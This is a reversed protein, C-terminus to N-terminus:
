LNRMLGAIARHLVTRRDWPHAALVVLAGLSQGALWGLGVGSLGDVRAGGVSSVLCLVTVLGSMWIVRCTHQHIRQYAMVFTTFTYPFISLVLYILLGSAATLYITGFIHLILHAAILLTGACPILVALTRRMTKWFAAGAMTPDHGAGAFASTAVATPVIFLTNALMWNVYFQANAEPGLLAVVLLPYVFQPVNWVLLAAHNGLTYAAKGALMSWAFTPRLHYGPVAWPVFCLLAFWSTVLAPGGIAVLLGGPGLVRLPGLLLAIRLLNAACNRIFLFQTAQFAVFVRDLLQGVGFAVASSVFVGFYLPSRGLMSLDSSWWPSCLAFIGAILFTGLATMVLAANIFGAQRSGLAPAFRILATGLGMEAVTTLFTLASIYAAGTGVHAGSLNRAAVLWFLFGLLSGSLTNAILFFSNGAVSRRQQKAYAVLSIMM